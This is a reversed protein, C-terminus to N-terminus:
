QWLTGLETRLYGHHSTSELLLCLIGTYRYVRCVPWAWQRIRQSGVPAPLGKLLNVIM